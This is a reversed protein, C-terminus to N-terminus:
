RKSDFELKYAQLELQEFDEGAKQIRAEVVRIERQVEANLEKLERIRQRTQDRRETEELAAEEYKDAKQILADIRAEIEAVFVRYEGLTRACFVICGLIVAVLVWVM